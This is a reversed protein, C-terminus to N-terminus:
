HYIRQGVRRHARIELCEKMHKGVAAKDVGRPRQHIPQRAILRMQLALEGSAKSDLAKRPKEDTLSEDICNYVLLATTCYKVVSMSNLTAANTVSFLLKPLEVDPNFRMAPAFDVSPHDTGANHVTALITVPATQPVCSDKWYSAGYTSSGIACISNARISIYSAGFSLQPNDVNPDVTFTYTQDLAGTLAKRADTPSSLPATADGACASLGIAGSMVAISLLTRLAKTPKNMSQRM